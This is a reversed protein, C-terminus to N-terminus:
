RICRAYSLGGTWEWMGANNGIRVVKIHNAGGTGPTTTWLYNNTRADPIGARGSSLKLIEELNPLYWDSYGSEVLGECYTLADSFFMNSSENSIMTPCDCGGGTGSTSQWSGLGVGDSTLVKGAGPGGGTIKVQGKVELKAGPTTTGIGVNQALCQSGVFFLSLLLYLSTKFFSM